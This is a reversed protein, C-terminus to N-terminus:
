LERGTGGCEECKHGKDDSGRGDCAPCENTPLIAPLGAADVEETLIKLAEPAENEVRRYVKNWLRIYAQGLEWETLLKDLTQRVEFAKQTVKVVRRM